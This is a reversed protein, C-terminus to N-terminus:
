KDLKKTRAKKKTPTHTAFEEDFSIGSKRTAKELTDLWTLEEHAAKLLETSKTDEAHKILAELYEQAHTFAAKLTKAAFLAANRLTKLLKSTTHHAASDGSHSALYDSYLARKQTNCAEQLAKKEDACADQLKKQAARMEKKAKTHEQKYDAKLEKQLAHYSADTTEKIHKTITRAVMGADTHTPTATVITSSVCLLVMLHHINKM